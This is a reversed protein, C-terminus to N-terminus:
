ELQFSYPFFEVSLISLLVIGCIAAYIGEAVTGIVIYSYVYTHTKYILENGQQREV